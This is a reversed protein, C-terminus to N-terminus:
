GPLAETGIGLLHRLPQIVPRIVCRVANEHRLLCQIPTPAHERVAVGSRQSAVDALRKHIARGTAAVAMRSRTPCHGPAREAPNPLWTNPLARRASKWPRSERRM